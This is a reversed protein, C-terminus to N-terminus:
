SPASLKFKECIWDILCISWVGELLLLDTAVDLSNPRNLNLALILREYNYILPFKSVLHEYYYPDAITYYMVVSYIARLWDFVTVPKYM